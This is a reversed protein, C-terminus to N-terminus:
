IHFRLKRRCNGETNIVAGGALTEGGILLKKKNRMEQRLQGNVGFRAEYKGLKIKKKKKPPPTDRNLRVTNIMYVSKLLGLDPTNQTDPTQFHSCHVLASCATPRNFQHFSNSRKRVQKPRDYSGGPNGDWGCSMHPSLTDVFVGRVSVCTHVCARVCVRVCARARVCLLQRQASSYNYAFAASAM